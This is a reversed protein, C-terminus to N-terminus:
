PEITDRIGIGQFNAKATELGDAKDNVKGTAINANIEADDSSINSNSRLDRKEDDDEDREDDENLSSQESDDRVTRTSYDFM